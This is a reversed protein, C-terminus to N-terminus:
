RKGFNKKLQVRTTTTHVTYNTVCACVYVLQPVSTLLLIFFDPPVSFVNTSIEFM